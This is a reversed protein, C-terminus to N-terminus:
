VENGGSLTVFSATVNDRRLVVNLRNHWWDHVRLHGDIQDNFWWDGFNPLFVWQCRTTSGHRLATGSDRRLPFQLIIFCLHMKPLAGREGGSGPGSQSHRETSTEAATGPQPLASLKRFAGPRLAPPCWKFSKGRKEEWALFTGEKVTRCRWNVPFCRPSYKFLASAASQM